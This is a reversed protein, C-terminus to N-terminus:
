KISTITCGSGFEITGDKYNMLEGNITVTKGVAVTEYGTGKARFVVIEKDGVKITFTANGYDQSVEKVAVVEGTLEYTGKLSQGAELAFLATLIEEVSYSYKCGACVNLVAECAVTEEESCLACVKKHNMTGAVHQYSWEHICRNEDAVGCFAIASVKCRNGSVVEFKVTKNTTTDVEVADYTGQGSRGKLVIPAGGNVSVSADKAKYGAAYIIVKNVEAPVTFEFSGAVSSTGLKLCANGLADYSNKYVKSPNTITLTYGNVTEEYTGSGDTIASGDQKDEEVKSADKSGFEFKALLDKEGEGGVPPNVVPPNETGGTSSENKVVTAQPEVGKAVTIEPTNGNYNQLTGYVIVVDGVSLTSVGEGLYVYYATIIDSGGEDTMTFSWSGTYGDTITKPFTIEKIVGKVYYYSDTYEGSGLAKAVALAEAVTVPADISGVDEGSPGPNPTPNQGGKTYTCGSNFELKGDSGNDYNLLTGTVSIEDGVALDEGGKLRFCQIALKEAGVEITVTVNGYQSDYPTDISVITGTLTYEGGSLTEGPQLKKLAELIEAETEYRIEEGLEPVYNTYVEVKNIRTQSALPASVFKEVPTDFAIVLIDGVRTFTAGDVKMNDFGTAHASSSSSNLTLRIAKIPQTYSIEVLSQAYFRAPNTYTVCASKSSAMDNLLTIGNEAWTVTAYGSNGYSDTVEAGTTLKGTNDLTLVADPQPETIMQVTRKFSVSYTEGAENKYPNGSEDVLTATLTYALDETLTERDPVTVQYFGTTSIDSSITVLDSSSTWAVDVVIEGDEGDITAKGIVGFNENTVTADDKHYSRVGAILATLQEDTLATTKNCAVLVTGVITLAFVLALFLALKKKM